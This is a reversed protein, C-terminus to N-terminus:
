DKLLKQLINCKIKIVSQVGNSIEMGLANYESETMQLVLTDGNVLSYKVQVIDNVLRSIIDESVVNAYNIRKHGNIEIVM